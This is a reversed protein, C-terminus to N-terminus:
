RGDYNGSETLNTQINFREAESRPNRIVQSVFQTQRFYASNELLGILDSAAGSEGKITLVPSDYELRQLWTNDPLVKSLEDLIQIFAPFQNKAEILETLEAAQSSIDDRLKKASLAKSEFVKIDSELQKMTKTQQTFPLFIAAVLLFIMAFLAAFNYWTWLRPNQPRKDPALLNVSPAQCIKQRNGSYVSVLDVTLGSKELAAVILDVTKRPTVVLEVKLVSGADNSSNSVYDFYVDKEIFPTQRSIEYGLVERINKSAKGPLSVGQRLVLSEPMYVSIMKSSSKEAVIDFVGDRIVAKGLLASERHRCRYYDASHENQFVLIQKEDVGALGKTVFSPLFGALDELWIRFYKKLMDIM